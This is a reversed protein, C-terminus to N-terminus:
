ADDKKRGFPEKTYGDPREIPGPSVTACRQYDARAAPPQLSNIVIAAAIVLLIKV